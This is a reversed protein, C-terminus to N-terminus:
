SRVDLTQESNEGSRASAVESNPITSMWSRRGAPRRLAGSRDVEHEFPDNEIHRFSLFLEGRSLLGRLLFSSLLEHKYENIPFLHSNPAGFCYIACVDVFEDSAIGIGNPQMLVSHVLEDVTICKSEIIRSGVGDAAVQIPRGM